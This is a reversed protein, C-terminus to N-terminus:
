LCGVSLGCLVVLWLSISDFLKILNLCSLPAFCWDSFSLHASPVKSTVWSWFKLQALSFIESHDVVEGNFIVKNM